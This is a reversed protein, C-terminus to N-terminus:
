RDSRRDDILDLLWDYSLITINNGTFQYLSSRREQEQPFDDGRRGLVAVNRTRLHNLRRLHHAYEGYRSKESELHSILEEVYPGLREAFYGNHKEIWQNWEALQKMAQSLRKAPTGDKNFAKANKPEFEVLTIEWIQGWDAILFDSIYETGFKFKPVVFGTMHIFGRALIEPHDALFRQIHEETDDDDDLVAKFDDALHRLPTEHIDEASFYM